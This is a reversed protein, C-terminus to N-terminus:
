ALGDYEIKSNQWAARADAIASGYTESTPILKCVNGSTDQRRIIPAGDTTDQNLVALGCWEVPWQQPGLLLGGNPLRAATEIDIYYGDSTARFRFPEPAGGRISVPLRDWGINNAWQLDQVSTGPPGLFVSLWNYNGNDDSLDGRYREGGLPSFCIRSSRSSHISLCGSNNYAWYWAGGVQMQMRCVYNRPDAAVQNYKDLLQRTQADLDAVRKTLTAVDVQLTALDKIRALKSQLTAHELLLAGEQQELAALDRCNKQLTLLKDQASGAVAEAATGVVDIARTETIADSVMSIKHRRIELLDQASWTGAVKAIEFCRILSIGQPITVKASARYWGGGLDAFVTAGSTIAQPDAGRDRQGWYSFQFLPHMKGDVNSPDVKSSSDLKFEFEELYTGNEVVAFLEDNRYKAVPTKGDSLLLPLVCASVYAAGAVTGDRGNPSFDLVTREKDEVVAGLPWYGCLDAESGSLPVWLTDRIEDADLARGFLRLDALTGQYDRGVVISKVSKQNPALISEGHGGSKTVLVGNRYAAAVGSKADKTFTWHVWENKVLFPQKSSFAFENAPNGCLFRMTPPALRIRVVPTLDDGLAELFVPCRGPVSGDDKSRAWFGITIGDGTPLSDPPLSLSDFRGDFEVGRRRRAILKVNQAEAKAWPTEIIFRSGDLTSVPYEGDYSTSGVIQVQDGVTLGHNVANVVLKGGPLVKYSTLMGDFVLSDDDDPAQKEWTGLIPEPSPAAIEFGSENAGTVQYLGDIQPTGSIEIVDSGKLSGAEPSTVIVRGKALDADTGMLVGTITGQPPTVSAGLPLIQDLTNIPLLVVHQESRLLKQSFLTASIQSLTGDGAIAFSLATTGQDTPAALMVRTEVRLLHSEKTQANVVEKQIN